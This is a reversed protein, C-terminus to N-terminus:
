AHHYNKVGLVLGGAIETSLRPPDYEVTGVSHVLGAGIAWSPTIWVLVETELCCWLEPHPRAYGAGFEVEFRGRNSQAHAVGSPWVLFGVILCVVIEQRM